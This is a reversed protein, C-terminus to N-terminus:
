YPCASNVYRFLAHLQLVLVTYPLVYAIYIISGQADLLVRYPFAQFSQWIVTKLMVNNM